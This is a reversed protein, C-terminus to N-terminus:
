MDNWLVVVCRGMVVEPTQVFYTLSAGVIKAFAHIDTPIYTPSGHGIVVPVPRPAPRPPRQMGRMAASTKQLKHPPQPVSSTAGGTPPATRIHSLSGPAANNSLVSSIPRKVGIMTPRVSPPPTSISHVLPPQPPPQTAATQRAQQQARARAAASAMGVGLARPQALMQHSSANSASAQHTSLHAGLAAPSAHLPLSTPPLIGNASPVPKGVLTTTGGTTRPPPTFGAHPYQLSPVSVSPALPPKSLGPSAQHARYAPAGPPPQGPPPPPQGPKSPQSVLPSSM